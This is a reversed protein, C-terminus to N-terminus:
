KKKWPWIGGSNAQPIAAQFGGRSESVHTYRRLTEREVGKWARMFTSHVSDQIVRIILVFRKLKGKIIQLRIKELESEIKNELELFKEKRITDRDYSVGAVDRAYCAIDTRRDIREKLVEILQIYYPIHSEFDISNGTNAM